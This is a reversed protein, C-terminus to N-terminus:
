QTHRGHVFMNLTRGKCYSLATKSANAVAHTNGTNSICLSSAMKQPNM